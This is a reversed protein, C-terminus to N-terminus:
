FLCGYEGLFPEYYGSEKKTPMVGIANMVRVGHVSSSGGDLNAAYEFGKAKLYKAVQWLNARFKIFHINGEKLAVVNRLTVRNWFSVSFGYLDKVIKKQYVLLPRVEVLLDSSIPPYRDIGVENKATRYLFVGRKNKPFPCVTCIQGDIIIEGILFNYRPTRGFFSCNTLFTTGPTRRKIEAVTEGFPSKSKVVILKYSKQSFWKEGIPKIAFSKKITLLIVLICLVVIVWKRM